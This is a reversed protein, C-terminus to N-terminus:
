ESFPHQLKPFTNDIFLAYASVEYCVSLLQAFPSFTDGSLIKEDLLFILSILSM